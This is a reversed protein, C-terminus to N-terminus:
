SSKKRLVECIVCVDCSMARTAVSVSFNVVNINHNGKHLCFQVHGVHAYGGARAGQMSNM